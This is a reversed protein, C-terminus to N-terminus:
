SQAISYQGRGLRVFLEPTNENLYSRVSSAPVPGLSQEVAARIETISAGCGYSHIVGDFDVCLTKRESGM